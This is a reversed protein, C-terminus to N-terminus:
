GDVAGRRPQHTHAWVQRLGDQIPQMDLVFATHRTGYATDQVHLTCSIHCETEADFYACQGVVFGPFNHSAQGGAVSPSCWSNKEFWSNEIWAPVVAPWGLVWRHYSGYTNHLINIM